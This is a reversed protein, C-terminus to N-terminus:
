GVSQLKSLIKIKGRNYKQRLAKKSLTVYDVSCIAYSIILIGPIFVDLFYLICLFSFFTTLRARYSFNRILLLSSYTFTNLCTVLFSVLSLLFHCFAMISTKMFVTVKDYFHNRDNRSEFGSEAEINFYNEQRNEVDRQGIDIKKEFLCRLTGELAHIDDESKGELHIEEQSQKLNIPKMTHVKFNWKDYYNDSKSEPDLAEGGPIRYEPKVIPTVFIFRRFYASPNNVTHSINMDPNNTDIVVLEALCNVRGKDKVDSMNCSYPLSDCVSTLERVVDDGRMKVIQAATSGVESYHIFPTSYPDYGDWYDSSLVREFVHSQDFVRGKVDSFLQYVFNAVSSKGVGPPGYIVVGVPPIRVTKTLTANVHVRSTELKTVVDSMAIYDSGFPNKRKLGDSLIICLPESDSMFQKACMKGEVPLGYYLLDKYRLLHQARVLAERLPDASLFVDSLPLGNWLGEGLKILQSVSSIISLVSETITYRRDLTGFHRKVFRSIDRNFFKWGVVILVIQRLSNVFSSELLASGVSAIKDLEESLSETQLKRTRHRRQFVQSMISCSSILAALDKRAICLSFSTTLSLDMMFNTSESMQHLYLVISMVDNLNGFQSGYKDVCMDLRDKIGAWEHFSFNEIVAAETIIKKRSAQREKKREKKQAKLRAKMDRFAAKQKKSYKPKKDSLSAKAKMMDSKWKSTSTVESSRKPAIGRRELQLEKKKSERERRLIEKRKKRASVKAKVIGAIEKDSRLYGKKTIELEPNRSSIMKNKTERPCVFTDDKVEEQITEHTVHENENNLAFDFLDSAEKSQWLSEYKSQKGVAKRSKDMATKELNRKRLYQVYTLDDDASLGKKKGRRRKPGTLKLNFEGEEINNSKQSFSKIPKSPGNSFNNRKEKRSSNFVVNCQIRLLICHPTQAPM